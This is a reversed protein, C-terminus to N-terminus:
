KCVSRGNDINIDCVTKVCVGSIKKYASLHSESITGAGIIAINHIMM